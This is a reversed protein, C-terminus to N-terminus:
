SFPRFQVATRAPTHKASSLAMCVTQLIREFSSLRLANAGRQAQKKGRLAGILVVLGVLGAITVPAIAALRMSQDNNTQHIQCTEM